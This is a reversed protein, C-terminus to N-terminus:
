KLECLKLSNGCGYVSLGAYLLQIFTTQVKHLLTMTKSIWYFSLVGASHDLYVGIRKKRSQDSSRLNSSRKEILQILDTIKEIDKLVKDASRNIAELEQQLVKVGKEKEKIRQQINQQSVGLERQKEKREAAASVTDYGKHEDMSCLYCICQQDTRCFIKM